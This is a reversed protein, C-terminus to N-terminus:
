EEGCDVIMLNLDDAARYIFCEPSPWIPVRGIRIDGENFVITYWEESGRVEKVALPTTGLSINIKIETWATIAGDEFVVTTDYGEKYHIQQLKKGVLREALIEM